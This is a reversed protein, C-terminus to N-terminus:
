NGSSSPRHTLVDVILRLLGDRVTRRFILSPRIWIAQAWAKGAEWWRLQSTYKLAAQVADDGCFKQIFRRCAWRRRLSVREPFPPFHKSMVKRANAYMRWFDNSANSSHCRYILALRPAFIFPGYKALRIYLDWDDTGWIEPDFGGILDLATRRILTQGPSRVWGAGAFADLVWGTPADAGPYRHGNGSGTLEVIGYVLVADASDRMAAVQWALKDAPWADDDDLFAVFEGRAAQLGRNRAAAQGQNSQEIYRIATSVVLPQLLVATDDPSGDNVVVIEFDRFTQKLVSEIALLVFKRHNYTPIVVTVAPCNVPLPTTELNM